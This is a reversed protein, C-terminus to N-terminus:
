ATGQVRLGLSLLSYFITPVIGKSGTPIAALGLWLCPKLLAARHGRGDAVVKLKSCSASSSPLVLDPKHGDNGSEGKFSPPHSHQHHARHRVRKHFAGLRSRHISNFLVSESRESLSMQWYSPPKFCPLFAGLHRWIRIGAPPEDPLSWVADQTLRPCENGHQIGSCVGAQPSHLIVWHWSPQAAHLWSFAASSNGHGCRGAVRPERPLAAAWLLAHPFLLSFSVASLGAGACCCSTHGLSPFPVTLDEGGEELLLLSEQADKGPHQFHKDSLFFFSFHCNNRHNTGTHFHIKWKLSFPNQTSYSYFLSSPKIKKM